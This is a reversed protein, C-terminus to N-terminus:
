ELAQRTKLRGVVDRVAEAPSLPTYNFKKQFKSSDFVYPRDYQYMMEVTEGLVPVFWGLSRVLWKPLVRVGNDQVGLEQAFLTAWEAANPAYSPVPLNWVQNFADVSQGLLAVGKALDPVYGTSHAMDARALWQAKKGRMLNDYMLAMLLSTQKQEAFFDPARAIIATLKGKETKDLVYRNVDARVLGKKSPPAINSEETIPNLQDAGLAYVNDFFILKSQHKECAKVVDVMLKPWHSQWTKLRYPFGVTLYVVHSGRVAIDVQDAQTLDAPHLEELPSATIPQPQRQVLRYPVSLRHLEHALAIGVAGGAGLITHKM